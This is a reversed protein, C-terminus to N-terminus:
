KALRFFQLPGSVAGTWTYSGSAPTVITANTRWFSLDTSTQIQFQTGPQAQWQLLISQNQVALSQVQLPANGSQVAVVQGTLRLATDNASVLKLM